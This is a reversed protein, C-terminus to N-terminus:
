KEEGEIFANDVCIGSQGTDFLINQGNMQILLSFGHESKLGISPPTYNDCLVTLKIM